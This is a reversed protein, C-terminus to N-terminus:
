YVKEECARVVDTKAERMKDTISAVGVKDQIVGNSIKDRGSSTQIPKIHM